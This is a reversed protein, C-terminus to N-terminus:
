GAPVLDIGETVNAEGADAFREGLQNFLFGAIFGAGYIEAMGLAASNGRGVVANERLAIAKVGDVHHMLLLPAADGDKVAEVDGVDGDLVGDGGVAPEVLAEKVHDGIKFGLHLHDQLKLLFMSRVRPIATTM